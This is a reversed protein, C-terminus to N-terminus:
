RLRESLTVFRSAAILGRVEKVLRVTGSADKRGIMFTPTGSVGLRIGLLTGNKISPPLEGDICQRFREGFGLVHAYELFDRRGLAAQHKFLIDHMEWYRGEKAACAAAQAAAVAHTHIRQLPWDVFAYQAVGRELLESQIVPTLERNARECFPCEYNLLM